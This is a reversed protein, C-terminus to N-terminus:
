KKDFLKNLIVTFKSKIGDVNKAVISTIGMQVFSGLIQKLPNNTSGVIVKRSLYGTALSISTNLVDEKFDPASILEKVTKKLLNLPKLSEYCTKFEKKLLVEDQNQQNILSLIEINLDKTNTITKM